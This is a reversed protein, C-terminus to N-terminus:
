DTEVPKVTSFELVTDLENEWDTLYEILPPKDNLPALTPPPASHSNLLVFVYDDVFELDTM